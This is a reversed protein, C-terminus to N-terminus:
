GSQDRWEEATFTRINVAHISGDAIQESMAAYVLQQRAVPRLGAFVEGVVRIEYHSGEGQVTVECNELRAEVLAQVSAADM